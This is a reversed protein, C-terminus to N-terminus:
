DKQAQLEEDTVEVVTMECNVWPCYTCRKRDGARWAGAMAPEQRRCRSSCWFLYRRRRLLGEPELDLYTHQNAM